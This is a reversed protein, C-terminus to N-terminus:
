KNILGAAINVSFGLIAANFVFPFCRRRCCRRACATRISRSTQPRRRSRSRSRFIRSTGTTLRPRKTPFPLPRANVKAIYFMHGYHLTFATPVLLWSGVVTAGTLM